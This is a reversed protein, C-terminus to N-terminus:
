PPIVHRRWDPGKCEHQMAMERIGSLCPHPRVALLPDMLGNGLGIDRQEIRKVVQALLAHWESQGDADRRDQGLLESVRQDDLVENGVGGFPGGLGRLIHVAELPRAILCKAIQSAEIVVPVRPHERRELVSEAAIQETGEAGQLIIPEDLNGGTGGGV